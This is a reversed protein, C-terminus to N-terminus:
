EVSIISITRTHLHAVQQNWDQLNIKSKYEKLRTKLLPLFRNTGNVQFQEALTM